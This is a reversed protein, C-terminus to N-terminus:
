INLFYEQIKTSIDALDNIVTTSLFTTDNYTSTESPFETLSASIDNFIKKKASATLKKKFLSGSFPKTPTNQIQADLEDLDTQM